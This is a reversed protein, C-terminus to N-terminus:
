MTLAHVEDRFRQYAYDRPNRLIKLAVLGGDREAKWVDAHGGGGLPCILKWDGVHDGPKRKDNVRGLTPAKSLPRGLRSCPRTASRSRRGTFCHAGRVRSPLPSTASPTLGRPNVSTSLSTSAWSAPSSNASRFVSNPSACCM